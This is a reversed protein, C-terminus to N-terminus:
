TALEGHIVILWAYFKIICFFKSYTFTRCVRECVKGNHHCLSVYNVYMGPLYSLPSVLDVTFLDRHICLRIMDPIDSTTTDHCNDLLPPELRRMSQCLRLPLLPLLLPHPLQVM